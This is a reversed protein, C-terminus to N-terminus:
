NIDQGQLVLTLTQVEPRLRGMYSIKSRGEAGVGGGGLSLPRPDINMHM